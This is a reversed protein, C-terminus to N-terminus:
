QAAIVLIHAATTSSEVLDIGNAMLDAGSATGLFGSDVSWVNYNTQPGLGQPKVTFTAMGDDSQFAHVLVQAGGTM